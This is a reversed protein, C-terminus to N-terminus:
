FWGKRRYPELLAKATAFVPDDFMKTWDVSTYSYDGIKESKLTPDAQSLNFLQAVAMTVGQQLDAPISTYGATYDFRLNNFGCPFAGHLLGTNDDMRWSGLENPYLYVEAPGPIASRAGQIFKLDAAPWSGYSGVATASWGNAVATIAAALATVTGYSSPASLVTTTSVGSAVRILTVAASSVQITARQNATSSNTVYMAVEPGYAVRTVATIPYERLRIFGNGDGSRYETYSASLVERDLWTKVARSVNTVLTDIKDDNDSGTLGLYEKVLTRTTLDSENPEAVGDWEITGEAVITDSVLPTGTARLYAFIYYTGDDEIDAPFDGFYIGTSTGSETMAVDYNAWDADVATVFTATTTQWIEGDTNYVVFYINSDATAITSIENAM